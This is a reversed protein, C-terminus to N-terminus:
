LFTNIALVDTVYINEYSTEGDQIVTAGNLVIKAGPLETKGNADMKTLKFKFQM